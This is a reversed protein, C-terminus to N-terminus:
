VLIPNGDIRMANGERKVLIAQERMLAADAAARRKARSNAYGSVARRPTPAEKSYGRKIGVHLSCAAAIHYCVVTAKCDCEGLYAGLDKKLTVTYENGTSGTVKYTNESKRTVKPHSAKAKEIANKMKVAKLILM